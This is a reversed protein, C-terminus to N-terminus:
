ISSFNYCRDFGAVAPKQAIRQKYCSRVKTVIGTSLLFNKRSLSVCFIAFKVRKTPTSDHPFTPCFLREFQQLCVRSHRKVARRLQDAHARLDDPLSDYRTLSFGFPFLEQLTSTVKLLVRLASSNSFFFGFIDCRSAARSAPKDACLTTLSATRCALRVRRRRHLCQPAIM